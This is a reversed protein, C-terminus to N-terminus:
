PESRAGPAFIVPVSRFRMVSYVDYPFDNDNFDRHRLDWNNAHEAPTMTM